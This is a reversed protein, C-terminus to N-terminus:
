YAGFDFYSDGSPESGWDGSDGWGDASDGGGENSQGGSPQQSQSSGGNTSTSKQVPKTQSVLSASVMQTTNDDTKIVYWDTAVSKGIVKVEQGEPITGIPEEGLVEGYLDGYIKAESITYMTEDLPEIKYLMELKASLEEKETKLADLESQLEAIMDNASDLETKLASYGEVQSQLDDVTAQLGAIAEADQESAGCGALLFASMIMAMFLMFFRKM